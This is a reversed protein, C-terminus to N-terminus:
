VVTNRLELYDLFARADDISDFPGAEEGLPFILFVGNPRIDLM